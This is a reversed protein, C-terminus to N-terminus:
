PALDLAKASGDVGTTSFLYHVSAPSPAAANKLENTSLKINISYTGATPATFKVLVMGSAAATSSHTFTAKPVSVCGARYVTSGPGGGFLTAFNGTTISQNVTFTNAGQVATVNVWYSFTGLSVSNIRAKKVAYTLESLSSATGANFTACTAATSLQAADNPLNTLHFTATASGSTAVFAYPGGDTGNAHATVVVNGSADTTYPGAQVISASAGSAPGAFTVTANPVPNGGADLVTLALQTGFDTDIATSQNDGATISITAPAGVTNTLHFTATANAATAFFAYPGGVAGNAQATVVLNGDADTRYPGAEVISASAGTSPGAFTVDTNAVPDGESDTVTLDLQTGFSTSVATAQHDGANITVATPIGHLNLGVIVGDHDSSRYAAPEYLAEQEAPKFTTDYDFVDAEDSNVHWEAVGSVQGTLTPSSLAHDLYGAQGDFTYSYAYTGLFAKVLNTYDDATGLTDDPGAKVAAIPDEMAYSNLDGIVLFDPDGSATPDTALWDVLAKAAATRTLNCNGQGDGTDPDGIDACASGKSKLHNV